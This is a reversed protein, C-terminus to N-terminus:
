ILRKAHYMSKPLTNVKPFLDIKILAFFEDAFTNNVGHTTMLNLSLLVVILCSVLCGEYLPICAEQFMELMSTEHYESAHKTNSNPLDNENNGIDELGQSSRPGFNV